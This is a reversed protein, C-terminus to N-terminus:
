RRPVHAPIGDWGPRPNGPQLDPVRGAPAAPAPRPRALSAPPPHPVPRSPVRAPGSVGGNVQVLESRGWCEAMWAGQRKEHPRLYPDLYFGAVAEGTSADRVEYFRVGEAWVDVQGEEAPQPRAHPQSSPTSTPARLHGGGRVVLDVGFVRKSLAALGEMVRPLPFYQKLEDQSYSFRSERAREVYFPADWPKLGDEPFGRQKAFDAIEQMEREAAPRCRELLQAEMDEVAGVSGAMKTSLSVAAHHPFGLMRAKEGRVRLIEGLVHENNHDGSGAVTVRSRYLAERTARCSCQEFVAQTVVSDVGLHWPGEEETADPHGRQRATATAQALINKPIGEVEERTRVLVGAEGMSDLVNNQFQQALGAEEMSLRTFAERQDGPLGVGAM